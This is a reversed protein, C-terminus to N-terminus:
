ISASFNLSLKDFGLLLGGLEHEAGGREVNGRVHRSALLQPENEVCAPFGIGLLKQLEHFIPRDAEDRRREGGPAVKM